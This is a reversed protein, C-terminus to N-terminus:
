TCQDYFEHSPLFGITLTCNRPCIRQDLGMLHWHFHETTNLQPPMAKVVQMWFCRANTVKVCVLIHVVMAIEWDAHELAIEITIHLRDPM